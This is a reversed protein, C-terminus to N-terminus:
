TQAIQLGVTKYAKAEDASIKHQRVGLVGAKRERLDLGMAGEKNGQWAFRGIVRGKEWEM